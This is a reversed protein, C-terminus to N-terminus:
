DGIFPSTQTPERQEVPRTMALVLSQASKKISESTAPGIGSVAELENLTSVAVAEISDFGANFLSKALEPGVGPVSELVRLVKLDQDGPGEPSHAAAQFGGDRRAAADFDLGFGSISPYVAQVSQAGYTALLQQYAAEASDIVVFDDERPNHIEHIRLQVGSAAAELKLLPIEYRAAPRVHSTSRVFEVLVKRLKPM